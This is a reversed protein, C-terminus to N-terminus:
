VVLMGCHLLCAFEEKLGNWAWCFFTSCSADEDSRLFNRSFRLCSAFVNSSRTMMMMLTCSSVCLAEEHVEYSVCCCYRIKEM